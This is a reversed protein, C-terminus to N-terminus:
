LRRARMMWVVFAGGLASTVIGLPLEQPAAVSRALTDVVVLFVAGMLAATVLLPGALRGAAMRAIHPVMLGIFGIAGTLSVLIGTVLAAVGFISLRLRWPSVGLTRATEEGLLLADLSRAQALFFGLGLATGAAALGINDWSALGLGGLMWFVVSHAARQDGLVIALNTAAMLIFSVAVGALVLRDPRQREDLGSIALVMAFSLGAGAFAALPLTAPGFVDGVHVIVMVAGLAAGASIGFLYPDAL